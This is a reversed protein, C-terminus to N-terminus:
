ESIKEIVLHLNIERSGIAAFANFRGNRNCGALHLDAIATDASCRFRWKKRCVELSKEETQVSVADAGDFVFVPIMYAIDGDGNVKINLGNENLTYFATVERGDAFTCLIEATAGGPTSAHANVQYRTDTNVAFLWKGDKDKVGPAFALEAPDPIEVKFNPAAPCSGAMVLESPAGARHFRGLGSADYHPDAALEFEVCYDDHRLFLKHFHELSQWTFRTLTDSAAAPISDDCILYASYLFSGATIMYKNFHAYDECGFKTELPYRNKVHHIPQQAMGEAISDLAKAVRYKFLGAMAMDGAKAYRNAEFEMIIALHAENHYFQNSRGGFPIEGTVSQMKLSLLASKKLLSDIVGAYKGRYGLHLLLAFLGRPVLDYVMPENPDRYMGNEDFWQLQSAAQTDIFDMDLPSIGAKARMWESLMTFAAWNYVKDDPKRAFITYCQEIDIAALDKRWIATKEPPVIKANEVELIAFIIERVSFDNAAKKQPITKCSFDMMELFLEYLDRRRGNALLIGINATLRPFAQDDLGNAKVQDFFELIHELTYASLAIEMLDLYRQKM